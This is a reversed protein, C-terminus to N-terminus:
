FFADELSPVGGVASTKGDAVNDQFQQQGQGGDNGQLQRQPANQGYQVEFSQGEGQTSELISADIGKPHAATVYPNTPPDHRSRKYPNQPLPPAQVDGGLGIDVDSSAAYNSGSEYNYSPEQSMTTGTFNFDDFGAYQEHEGINLGAPLQHQSAFPDVPSLASTDDITDQALYGGGMTMAGYNDPALPQEHRAMSTGGFVDQMFPQQRLDMSTSLMNMASMTSMTSMPRQLAYQDMHNHQSFGPAQYMSTFQSPKRMQMQM